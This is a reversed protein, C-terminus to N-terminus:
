CPARRASVEENWALVESWSPRVCWLGRGDRDLGRVFCLIVGGFRSDYETEDHVGLLRTVALTYLKMQELYHIAVHRAIAAGDFSRLADSKWDLLYTLTGHVFALDIAGRVFTTAGSACAGASFIFKMERALLGASALSDIGRGGPLVIPTTYAAWVMREVDNRQRPEIRHAGMTEDILRRVDSRGRWADFGSSERISELSALELVEHLFVGATRGARLAAPAGASADLDGAADLGGTADFRASADLDGAADLGGGGELDGVEFDAHSPRPSRGAAMRTYSTLVDGSHTARLADYSPGDDADHVLAAPPEWGAAEPPPMAPRRVRRPAVDSVAFGDARAGVVDVLRRNVREYPGPMRKAASKEDVVCPLVLRGMARTLAVYMLREDEENEERRVCPKVEPSTEGAWAVRRGDEHYIHVSDSRTRSFGGAVFVLPAELGKSKHITMIQVASREGGLRKVNGEITGPLRTEAILGGLEGTLDRLTTHGERTRELLAEIVHMTNTLTREGDAFFIERRFVGSDHVISEFLRDFSRREALAKWARLREVFPHGAPLDRMLELASLELGFFPTLWAGLRCARDDPDDIAALLTRLDKAEDSQFLGDEKFFAHPVHAERLANAIVRGERASRTLVFVDHLQLARGDLRWPRAPDTAATAERAIAAGLADFSVEERFRLVHIAPLTKGEGDVLLRDPRGCTTTCREFVESSFLPSPATPDLLTNTADVLSATARYSERLAVLKGGSALVEDRARVYTQVDAGRFRYISQKPDGVLFVAGPPDASTREIFARRFISWQTADTDQFEDILAYRWRRRMDRALAEGGAGRLAEDVLALMDDFDYQGADRKTRRSLRDVGPLLVQAMAGSFTPTSRALALAAARLRSPAGARPAIPSLQDILNRAKARDAELVFTALDGSRHAREAIAALAHLREHISRATSAHAGAGKLEVTWDVNRLEDVPLARIAAALAELDLVPRLPGHAQTCQWLLDEIAPVSWGARLAAEIWGAGIAGVAERRLTERVARGFAERGDVAREDFLRGSAFANERLIRECFAHITTITAGDFSRVARALKAGTAGDVTWHAPDTSPAPDAGSIASIPRGNPDDTPGARAAGLEQLKTRVRTRLEQTAKDTFTVILVRDITVDATLLLEVVLHELTFTKGTGASADIVAHRNTPIDRLVRPRPLRRPSM